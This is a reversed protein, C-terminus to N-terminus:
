KNLAVATTQPKVGPDAPKYSSVINQICKATDETSMGQRAATHKATHELQVLDKRFGTLIHKL